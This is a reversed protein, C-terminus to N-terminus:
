EHLFDRFGVLVDALDNIDYVPGADTLLHRLQTRQADDFALKHGTVRRMWVDVLGERVGPIEAHQGIALVEWLQEGVGGPGHEIHHAIGREDLGPMGDREADAGGVQFVKQYPPEALQEVPVIRLAPEATSKSKRRQLRRVQRGDDGPLR